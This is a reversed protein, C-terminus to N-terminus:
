HTNLDIATSQHTRLLQSHTDISVLIAGEIYYEQNTVFSMAAYEPGIDVTDPAM